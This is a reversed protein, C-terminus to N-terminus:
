HNTKFVNLHKRQSYYYINQKNNRAQASRKGRHQGCANILRQRTYRLSSRMSTCWNALSGKRMGCMRLDTFKEPDDPVATAEVELEELLLVAAGEGMVFGEREPHFPRSALRPEENWRTALARARAFGAISLPCVCSEAGGTVM